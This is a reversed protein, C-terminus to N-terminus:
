WHACWWTVALIVSGFAPSKHTYALYVWTAAALATGYIRAHWKGLQIGIRSVLVIALVFWFMTWRVSEVMEGRYFVQILFFCLSGVILMILMPSIAVVVYDALTKQPKEQDKDTDM